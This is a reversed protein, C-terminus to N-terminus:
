AGPGRRARSPRAARARSRRAAARSASSGREDPRRPTPLELSALMFLRADDPWPMVLARAHRLGRRPATRQHASRRPVACRCSRRPPWPARADGARAPEGRDELALALGQVIRANDPALEAARSLEAFAEDRRGTRILLLGLAFHPEGLESAVAVAKRLATEAADERSAASRDALNAYARFWPGLRLATRRRARHRPRGARRSLGLNVHRQAIANVAQTARYEALSAALRSREPPSWLSAPVDALVRAADARVALL